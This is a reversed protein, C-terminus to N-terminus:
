AFSVTQRRAGRMAMGILGFGSILMMWTAPEPVPATVPNVVATGVEVGTLDPAGFLATLAGAAESTLNLGLTSTIDFIPVIGLVSGNATAQGFLSSTATNITFNELLLSNGGGTFSLGSGGHEILADGNSAVTGGTIPFTVVPLGSENIVATASGIPAFSLGLDTLAPGATVTVETTGGLISAAQAQVPLAAAAVFSSSALLALLRGM